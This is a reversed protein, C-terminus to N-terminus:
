LGNNKTRYLTRVTCYMQTVHPQGRRTKRQSNCVPPISSPECDSLEQNAESLRHQKKGHANCFRIGLHVGKKKKGRKQAPPSTTSPNRASPFETSLHCKMVAGEGPRGWLSPTSVRNNDIDVQWGPPFGLTMLFHSTHNEDQFPSHSGSVLWHNRTNVTSEM